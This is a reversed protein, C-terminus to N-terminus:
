DGGPTKLLKRYFWLGFPMPAWFSLLRYLLTVIIAGGLPMNLSTMFLTMSGEYVLLSGPLIPLLSVIQTCILFLLATHFPVSIGLGNFLAYITFGDALLVLLQFFLVKVVITKNNKFIDTLRIDEKSVGPESILSKIKEAIKKTLRIKKLWIYFRLLVKNKGAVSVILSFLLYAIIGLMLTTLYLKPTQYIFLGALLLLIILAEVAFYYILLQALLLTIIHKAEIHFNKLYRFFFTNGSIGASPVLQNFFQYIISGKVLQSLGPLKPPSFIILLFWYSIATFVYTLLQATIAAILWFPTEKKLLLLDKQIGAFHKVALLFVLVFLVFYVMWKKFQTKEKGPAQSSSKNKTGAEM